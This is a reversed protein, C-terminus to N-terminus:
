RHRRFLLLAVGGLAALLFTSPEPIGVTFPQLGLLPVVPGPRPAVYLPLLNSQGVNHGASQAQAYSDYIGGGNYWARVQITVEFQTQGILLVEGGYFFGAGDVNWGHDPATGTSGLFRADRLWMPNLSDFLAQNTVTGNVFLLSATYNSGVYASPPGDAPNFTRPAASITVPSTGPTPTPETFFNDFAIVGQSQARPVLVLTIVVAFLLSKM